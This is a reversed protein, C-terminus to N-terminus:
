PREKNVSLSDLEHKSRELLSRSENIAERSIRRRLLMLGVLFAVRCVSQHVRKLADETSVDEGSHNARRGEDRRHLAM